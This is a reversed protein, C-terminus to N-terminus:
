ADICGGTIMNEYLGEAYGLRLKLMSMSGPNDLNRYDLALKCISNEPNDPDCLNTIMEDFLQQCVPEAGNKLLEFRKSMLEAALALRRSMIENKYVYNAEAVNRGVVNTRNGGIIVAMIDLVDKYVLDKRLGAVRMNGTGTQSPLEICIGQEPDVDCHDDIIVLRYFDSPLSVDECIDAIWNQGVLSFLSDYRECWECEECCFHMYIVNDDCLGFKVKPELQLSTPFPSNVDLCAYDKVGLECMFMSIIGNMFDTTEPNQSVPNFVIKLEPYVMVYNTKWWGYDIYSGDIIVDDGSEFIMPVQTSFDINDCKIVPNDPEYFHTFCNELGYHSFDHFDIPNNTLYVDGAVKNFNKLITYSQSQEQVGSYQGSYQILFILIFMSAILGFIM